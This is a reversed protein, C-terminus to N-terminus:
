SDKKGFSFYATFKILDRLGEKLPVFALYVKMSDIVCYECQAVIDYFRIDVNSAEIDVYYTKGAVTIEKEPGKLWYCLGKIRKSRPVDVLVGKGRCIPCRGRFAKPGPLDAPYPYEPDFVGSSTQNVSDWSCNPCTRDAGPLYVLIKRGLTERMNAMGDKYLRLVNDDVLKEPM